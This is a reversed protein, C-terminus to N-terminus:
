ELGGKKMDSNVGLLAYTAPPYPQHGIEFTVMAEMIWPLMAMIDIKQTASVNLRRALFQVYEVQDKTTWKAVIGQLTDIGEDQYKKLTRAGARLGYYPHSFIAHGQKDNGTQGAWEKGKINLPNNNLIGLPTDIWAFNDLLTPPAQPTAHAKTAIQIDEKLTPWFNTIGKKAIAIAYELAHHQYQKGPIFFLALCICTFLIWNLLKQEKITTYLPNLFQRYIRKAEGKYDPRKTKPFARLTSEMADLITEQTTERNNSM